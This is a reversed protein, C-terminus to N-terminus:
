WILALALLDIASVIWVLFIWIAIMGQKAIPGKIEKACVRHMLKAYIDKQVIQKNRAFIMKSERFSVRGVPERLVVFLKM